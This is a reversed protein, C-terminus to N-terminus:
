EVETEVPEVAEPEPVPTMDPMTGMTKRELVEGFVNTLTVTQIQRGDRKCMTGWQEYM